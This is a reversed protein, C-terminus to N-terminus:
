KEVRPAHSPKNPQFREVTKFETTATIRDPTDTRVLDGRWARPFDSNTKTEDRKLLSLRRLAPPDGIAAPCLLLEIKGNSHLPASVVRYLTADAAVPKPPKGFAGATKPKVHVPVKSAMWLYSFKLFDKQNGIMNDIQAILQPRKWDLYVHCWDRQNHALMPCVAQHLCPALIKAVPLLQDRLEMLDRSTQQLAPEIVLLRGNETLHYTLLQQLLSSRMAMTGMENLMNACIILDFREGRLVDKLHKPNLNALKTRLTAKSFKLRGFLEYADQLIAKNHDIALIEVIQQSGTAQWAAAAALSGTGPGCGLDLVRIKPLAAFHAIAGMREICHLIKPFNATLFYLLYGARFAPKNFYNQPRDRHESTFAASVMGVGEAWFHLARHKRRDPLYHERVHAEITNLLQDLM